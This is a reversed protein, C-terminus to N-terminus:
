LTRERLTTGCSGIVLGEGVYRCKGGTSWHDGNILSPLSAYEFWSGTIDQARHTAWDMVWEVPENRLEVVEEYIETISYYKKINTIDTLNDYWIAEGKSWQAFRTTPPAEYYRKALKTLKGM